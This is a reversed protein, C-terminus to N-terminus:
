QKWWAHRPIFTSKHDIDLNRSHSSLTRYPYIIDEPRFDPWRLLRHRAYNNVNNCCGYAQSFFSIKVETDIYSVYM